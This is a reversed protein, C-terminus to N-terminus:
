LPLEPEKNERAQIYSYVLQNLIQGVDHSKHELQDHKVPAGECLHVYRASRLTGLRYVYRVAQELTFGSVSYASAEAQKIADVDLEVGVPGRTESVYERAEFLADEYTMTQDMFVQQYTYFPFDAQKLGDITEQNNKQEHLGVVCYHSLSGEDYAYRFPNGSHRGEKPRFDAHPDLNACAVADGTQQHLAKIIPYANNHGGGIVIAELGAAFIEGLVASVRVDIDGCLKRLTALKHDSCAAEVSQKQLDDVNVHGLLLVQSWDFFQNAQQNLIVPLFNRWGGDAGGKGCNARPGIDEPIGVIVYKVGKEALQQLNDTLSLEPNPLKIVDAVHTENARRQQYHAVFDLEIYSLPHQM